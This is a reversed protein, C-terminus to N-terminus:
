FGSDDGGSTGGLVQVLGVLFLVLGGLSLVVGLIPSLYVIIGGVTLLVLGVILLVLGSDSENTNSVSKLSKNGALAEKIRSRIKRAAEKVAPKKIKLNKKKWPVKEKDTKYSTNVDAWKVNTPKKVPEIQKRDTNEQENNQKGYALQNNIAEDSTTNNIFNNLPKKGINVHYGKM